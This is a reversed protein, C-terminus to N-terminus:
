KIEKAKGNFKLLCPIQLEEQPLDASYRRSGRVTYFISRRKPISFLSKLDEETPAWHNGNRKVAVTGTEIMTRSGKVYLEEGIAAAWIAKCIHYGRVCCPKGCGDMTTDELSRTGPSSYGEGIGIVHLFFNM